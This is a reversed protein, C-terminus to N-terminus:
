IFGGAESIINISSVDFSVDKTSGQLRCSVNRGIGNTVVWNKNIRAGGAWPSGWASGWATQSGGSSVLSGTPAVDGFDVDIGFNFTISANTTIIPRAMLFRKISERDGLYNFATRLKFDILNGNDDDMYDAEYIKGDFGGFYPKENFLTWSSANMGTFRCWAGNLMNMVYQESQIGQSVPVNILLYKGRPYYLIQWGFNTGYDRGAATFVNRIKDSISATGESIQGLQLLGSFPQVGNQHIILQDPGIFGFSRRGLPIPTYFRGVRVWNAAGPNDGEYALIEGMNSVVIFLDTAGSGTDRSWSGAWQIYGGLRFESALDLETTAGNTANLAAYYIKFTNIAVLYLRSKYVSIHVLANDDPLGANTYSVDAVTAGDYIRPQDAGNVAILNNRFNVTQWKNSTIASGATIDTAAGGVTSADYIKNNAFGILKRSGNAASYEAVTEVAGSGLGTAQVRFGNRFTATTPGPLINVLEIADTEPMLDLPDRANWGGIPAPISVSQNIRRRTM